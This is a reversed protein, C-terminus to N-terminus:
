KKYINMNYLKSSWPSYTKAVKNITLVTNEEDHLENNYLFIATAIAAYEEGSIDAESKVLTSMPENSNEITKIAKKNQLRINLKTYVILVFIILLLSSFVTGMSIVTLSIGSPDKEAISEAKKPKKYHFSPSENIVMNEFGNAVDISFIDYGLSNNGAVYLKKASIDYSFSNAAGKFRFEKILEGKLNLVRFLSSDSNSALYVIHNEYVAVSQPKYMEELNYVGVIEDVLIQKERIMEGEKNESLLEITNENHNIIAFVKSKNETAFNQPILPDYGSNPTNHKISAKLEKVTEQLEKIMEAQSADQANVFFCSLTFLSVSIFKLINSKM